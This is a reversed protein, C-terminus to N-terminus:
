LIEVGRLDGPERCQARVVVAIEAYRVPRQTRAPCVARVDHLGGLFQTKAVYQARGGVLDPLVRKGEDRATGRDGRLDVHQGGHAAALHLRDHQRAGDGREVVHQFAPQRHVDDRRVKGALAGVAAVAVLARALHHLYQALRPRAVLDVELAFDVAE